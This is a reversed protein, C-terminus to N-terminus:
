ISNKVFERSNKKKKEIQYMNQGSFVKKNYKVFDFDKKKKKKVCDNKKHPIICIPRSFVFIYINKLDTYFEVLLDRNQLITWFDM